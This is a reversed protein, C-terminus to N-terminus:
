GKVFQIYKVAPPKTPVHSERCRCRNALDAEDEEDNITWVRVAGNTKKPDNSSYNKGLSM